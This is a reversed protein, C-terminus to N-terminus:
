QQLQWKKISDLPSVLMLVNLTLNDRYKLLMGVEIGAFLAASGAVSLRHALLWGVVMSLLDGTVNLVSDGYYDLSATNSRYRNIIWSSNEVVEWACELGFSALFNSELPLSHFMWYFIVGHLVHSFSYPDLLAQSTSPSSTSTELLYKPPKTWVRGNVRLIAVTLAYMGVAAIYM